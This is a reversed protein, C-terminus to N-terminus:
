GAFSLGEVGKGLETWTTRVLAFVGAPTQAYIEQDGNGASIAEIGPLQPLQRPDGGKLSVLEPAVPDNASVGSVLITTDDVWVARRPSKETTSLTIPTSLERPTGDAARQVGAVQLATSDGQSSLVLARTGDRSVRLDEVTRGALWPATLTAKPVPAGEAVGAPKYAVAETAGGGGPGATWVWDFPDISPPSFRTRSDLLRPAQNQVISYLGKEGLFAYVHQSASAAPDHPALSAVSRLGDIRAAQRSAYQVLEGGAIGVQWAPVKPDVVPEPVSKGTTPDELTVDAQNSRLTVDVVSSIGSFTRVLQYRMRQRDTFSADRLEPTLDVQATNDVIPVSERELRIGQPFASAVASRLYPAPGAILASVLSKAVGSNDIFWRVDPVLTTFSPDYFYLSFPRYLAKFTEEPIATGDPLNSLRWQGDVQSLTVDIHEKTGPPFPTTIGQSDVSYALDFEYRYQNEKGTAVVTASGRYVLTRDSPKWSVAQAPALFQRAVTFDNQYGSGANFFGDIMAQPSAGDRPGPPIIQPANGLTVASDRSKGVTGTTPIQACGALTALALLAALVAAPISRRM